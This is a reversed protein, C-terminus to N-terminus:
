RILTITGHKQIFIGDFDVAQVQFVYVGEMASLGSLTQGNWKFDPDSSEFVVRGQRNFIRIGFQQIKYVGVYFEDNYGDGNPTFASPVHVSVIKKVEIVKELEYECGNVDVLSLNILYKGPYKYEHAPGSAISGNGDGFEWKYKDGRITGGVEFSVIASPLEIVTDSATIYGTGEDHLAAQIALRNSRCEQPSIVEVYYTNGFVIPPTLYNLGKHFPKESTPTEFWEVQGLGQPIVNLFAQQSFCVSDHLLEPDPTQYVIQPLTLSDRCGKDSFVTLRVGFTDARNYLHAPTLGGNMSTSDGFNWIWGAIVDNAIDNRISSNYQLDVLDGLCVDAETEFDVDPAPYVLVTRTATDMCGTTSLSTLLLTHPGPESYAHLVTTDNSFTGDGLSWRYETIQATSDIRSANGILISDRQCLASDVVIAAIPTPYVIVSQTATDPCGNSDLIALIIDKTGASRYVHNPNRSVAGTSDGFNWNYSIIGGGETGAYRFEFTNVELCQPDPANIAADPIPTLSITQSNLNATNGCFDSVAGVLSVTYIAATSIPPDVTLAFTNDYTGGNDCASNVQTITYPGGPGTFTFDTPDVTNCLINESFGVSVGNCHHGVRTM